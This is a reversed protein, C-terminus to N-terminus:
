KCAEVGQLHMGVVSAVRKGLNRATTLGDNDDEIAGSVSAEIKAMSIKMVNSNLKFGIDGAIIECKVKTLFVITKGPLESLSEYNGQGKSIILDSDDFVRRFEESCRELLVGPANDGTDILDCIRDIGAARADEKTADNLIPGGRVAYTLRDAPLLRLLPVDFFCEGANDGIYLISRSEGILASFDDVSDGMLPRALVDQIVGSLDQNSVEKMGYAGCDIINGAIALRIATALSTVSCAMVRTMAPASELCAKNAMKKAAAYLDPNGSNERILDHIEIAMVIPPEDFSFERIKDRVVDLVEDVDHASLDSIACVDKAQRELCSLCAEYTKM